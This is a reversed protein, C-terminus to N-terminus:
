EVPLSASPPDMICGILLLAKSRVGELVRIYVELQRVHSDIRHLHLEADAVAPLQYIERTFEVNEHVTEAGELAWGLEQSRVACEAPLHAKAPAACAVLLAVLVGVIALLTLGTGLKFFGRAARDLGNEIRTPKM